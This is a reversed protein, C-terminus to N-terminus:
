LLHCINIQFDFSFHKSNTYTPNCNKWVTEKEPSNSNGNNTKCKCTTNIHIFIISPIHTAISRLFLVAKPHIFVPTRM